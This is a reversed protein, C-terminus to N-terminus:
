LGATRGRRLPSGPKGAVGTGGAGGLEPGTAAIGLDRPNIVLASDLAINATEATTM